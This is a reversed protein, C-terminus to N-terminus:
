GVKVGYVKVTINTWTYDAPQLLAFGTVQQAVKQVGIGKVGVAPQYSNTSSQSKIFTYSSSNFPNFVDFNIGGQQEGADSYGLVDMISNQNTNRQEGFTTDARLRLGAYDYYSSSDVGSSNIFKLYAFTTHSQKYDTVFIKYYDYDASFCNTVSFETISTGSASTIFELAM